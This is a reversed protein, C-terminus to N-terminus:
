PTCRHARGVPAPRKGARPAEQAAPPLMLVREEELRKRIAGEIAEMRAKIPKEAAARKIQAAEASDGNAFIEAPTKFSIMFLWYIPFLFFLTFWLEL